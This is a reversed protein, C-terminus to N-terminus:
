TVPNLHNLASGAKFWDIQGPSYTHLLELTENSGDTHHLVLKLPVGSTFQTLGQIDLLDDEKIKDYDAPNAFTLALM